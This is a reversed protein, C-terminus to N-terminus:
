MKRRTKRPKKVNTKEPCGTPVTEGSTPLVTPGSVFDSPRFFHVGGPLKSPVSNREAMKLVGGESINLLASMVHTDVHTEGTPLYSGSVLKTLRSGIMEAASLPCLAALVRLFHLICLKIQLDVDSKNPSNEQSM